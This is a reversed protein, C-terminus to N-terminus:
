APNGDSWGIKTHTGDCFPKNGSQGCRCLAMRARREYEEGDASLVRIGGEIYLPGSCEEAPDQTTSIRMPRPADVPEGTQTDIAVLRGSVCNKIQDLFIAAVEPDDTKEVEDWVTQHTDCFRALACLDEQDMLKFRPGDLVEAQEAFPARDAVEKGDFGEREHSNDCFPKNGSKGCRCLYMTDKSDFEGTTQWALSEGAENVAISQEIFPVRGKIEYPGDKTVTIVPESSKSEAM